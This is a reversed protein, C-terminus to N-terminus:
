SSVKNELGVGGTLFFMFEENELDGKAKMFNACLLFSFLLKDKEFLSRCVNCYLSYTFHDTLFTLRRDLKKSKPSFSIFYLLLIYM